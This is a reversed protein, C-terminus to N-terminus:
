KGSKGQNAVAQMAKAVEEEDGLYYNRIPKLDDDLEDSSDYVNILAGGDLTIHNGQSRGWILSAGPAFMVVFGDKENNADLFLNDEYSASLTARPVFVLPGIPFYVPDYISDGRDLYLVTDSGRTYFGATYPDGALTESGWLIGFAILVAGFYRRAYIM